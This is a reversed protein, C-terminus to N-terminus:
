IDFCLGHGPQDVLGALTLRTAYRLIGLFGRERRESIQADPRRPDQFRLARVAAAWAFPILTPRASRVDIGCLGLVFPRCNQLGRLKCHVRKIATYQLVPRAAAKRTASSAIELGRTIAEDFGASQGSPAGCACPRDRRGGLGTCGGAVRFRRFGGSAYRTGSLMARLCPDAFSLAVAIGSGPKPPAM